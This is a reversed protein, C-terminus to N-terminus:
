EKAFNKMMIEEVSLNSEPASTKTALELNAKKLEANEEQLKTIADNQKLVLDKLNVEDEKKSTLVEDVKAMIDAMSPESGSSSEETTKVEQEDSM